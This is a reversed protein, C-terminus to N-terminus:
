AAKRRLSDSMTAPAAVPNGVTLVAPGAIACVVTLGPSEVAYSEGAMLVIDRRDNDHTIWLAGDLCSVITGADGREGLRVLGGRQLHILANNSLCVM